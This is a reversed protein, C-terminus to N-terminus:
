PWQRKEGVHCRRHLHHAIVGTELGIQGEGLRFDHDPRHGRIAPHRALAHAEALPQFQRGEDHQFAGNDAGSAIAIVWDFATM